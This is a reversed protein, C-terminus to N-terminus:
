TNWEVSNLTNHVYIGDDVMFSETGPITFDYVYEDDAGDYKEIKTIEDWIVDANYAQELLVLKEEIEPTIKNKEARFTELYKGLTRRGISEKMRWRGYIRSHDPLRMLKGIDAVLNGVEPVKDVYEALDHIDERQNYRVIEEIGTKKAMSKLRLKDQIISAYKRSVSLSKIRADNEGVIGFIGV